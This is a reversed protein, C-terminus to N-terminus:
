DEHLKPTQRHLASVSKPFRLLTQHQYIEATFVVPDDVRVVGGRQKVIESRKAVTMGSVGM